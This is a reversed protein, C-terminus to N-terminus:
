RSYRNLQFMQDPLSRRLDTQKINVTSDYVGNHDIQYRMPMMVGSIQKYDSYRITARIKGKGGLNNELYEIGGVLGTDDSFFLTFDPKGAKKVKIATPSNVIKELQFSGDLLPVLKACESFYCDNRLNEALQYSMSQITGGTMSYTDSGNVCYIGHIVKEQDPVQGNVTVHVGISVLAGLLSKPRYRIDQDIRLKDPPQISTTISATYDTGDKFKGASTSTERTAPYRTLAERGGHAAIGKEILDVLAQKEKAKRAEEAKIEALAIEAEISKIEAADHNFGNATTLFSRAEAFQGGSLAARAKELAQLYFVSVLNISAQAIDGTTAQVSLNTSVYDQLRLEVDSIGTPIHKLTLPTKGIEKGKRIVTAGAPTSTIQVSGYQFVINQKAAQKPGVEVGTTSDNEGDSATILYKGPILEQLVIPTKGIEVGNTSIVLGVPDSTLEISGYQFEIKNTVGLGRIATVKSNLEWGKRRALLTYEGVPVDEIHVPLHGQWHRGNGSLDFEADAPEALLDVIGLNLEVKTETQQQRQIVVERNEEYEGRKITLSYNGVPLKNLTLPTAGQSVTQGSRQVIINAPSPTVSVVLSGKSTELPLTGLNKAGFIVWCHIELPEADKLQVSLAHRGMKIKNGSTFPHGDVNVAPVKETPLGKGDLTFSFSLATKEALSQFFMIGGCLVVATLVLAIFPKSTFFNSSVPNPPPSSTLNDPM